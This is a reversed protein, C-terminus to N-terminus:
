CKVLELIFRAGFLAALFAFVIPAMFYFEIKSGPKQGSYYSRAMTLWIGILLFLVFLYSIVEVGADSNDLLFMRGLVTSPPTADSSQVFTHVSSAWVGGARTVLTAFLSLAGTSIAVGQYLIAPKSGPKTRLHSLIVLALWPLFSGTEAPDQGIDGWDLILYVWLGGLGIGLTLVFFGKKSSIFREAISQESNQFLHSEM